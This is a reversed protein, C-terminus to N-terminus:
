DALAEVVADCEMAIQQKVALPAVRTMTPKNYRRVSVGQEVFLQELRDLLVDGRPKNIDLLGITKGELTALRPLLAKAAANLEATPDLFVETM